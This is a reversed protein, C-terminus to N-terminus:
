IACELHIDEPERAYLEPDPEGILVAGRGQYFRITNESPTASIYLGRAGRTRAATRAQDFLHTGLGQTRYDRSVHLFELQLLDGQAGRWITDLVAVGALVAGDFAAHFEAGRGYCEYLLATTEQVTSPQWGPVDFNHPHLRLRGDELRFINEIFERRDITWIREIEHRELQRYLM